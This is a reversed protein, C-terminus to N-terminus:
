HHESQLLGRTLADQHQHAQHEEGQGPIPCRLRPLLWAILNPVSHLLLDEYKSDRSLHHYGAATALTMQLINHVLMLVQHHSIQDLFSTQLLAKINHRHRIPDIELCPFTRLNHSRLFTDM